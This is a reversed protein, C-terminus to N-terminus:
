RLVFFLIANPGFFMCTRISVDRFSFSVSLCWGYNKQWECFTEYWRDKTFNLLNGILPFQPPGPPYIRRGEKPRSVVEVTAYVLSTVCVTIVGLQFTSYRDSLRSLTEIPFM